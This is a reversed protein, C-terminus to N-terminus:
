KKPSHIKGYQTAETLFSNFDTVNELNVNAINLYTNTSASTPMVMSTMNSLASLNRAVSSSAAGALTSTKLSGTEALKKETLMDSLSWSSDDYKLIPSQEGEIKSLGSLIESYKNAFDTLIDLRGDLIAQEYDAGLIQKAILNDQENEYNDTISEWKSKYDELVAIDYDKQADELGKQADKLANKDSEWQWGLGEVYTRVTKQGTLNDVSEKADKVAKYAEELSNTSRIEEIQRDIIKGVASTASSYNKKLDSLRDKEQEKLFKYVAEEHKRYDELYENKGEFYQRNIRDIWAYYDKDSLEEMDKLHQVYDYEKQFAKRHNEYAEKADKDEPPDAALGSWISSSSRFDWVDEGYKGKNNASISYKGKAYMPINGSKIRRTVDAPLITDGDQIPIIEAGHTGIFSLNGNRLLAEEGEEGVLSEKGTISTQLGIAGTAWATGGGGGGGGGTHVTNVTVTVTKSQVSNLYGVVGGIASIAQGTNATVTTSKDPPDPIADIAANAPATDADVSLEKDEPDGIGAMAGEAPSTDANVEAIIEVPITENSLNIADIIKQRADGTINLDDLTAEVGSLSIEGTEMNLSNQISQLIVEKQGDKLGSLASDLGVEVSAMLRLKVEQESFYSVYADIQGETYQGSQELASRISNDMETTDFLGSLSIKGTKGYNESASNAWIETSDMIAADVQNKVEGQLGSFATATEASLGEITEKWNQKLLNKKDDSIMLGDILSNGADVTKGVDSIDLDSYIKQLQSEFNVAEEAALGIGDGMQSIKDLASGGLAMPLVLGLQVLREGITSMAENSLGLEEKMRGLDYTVNGFADVEKFREMSELFGNSGDENEVFLASNEELWQRINDPPTQGFMDEMSMKFADTNTLGTELSANIKGILGAYLDFEQPSAGDFLGKYSLEESKSKISNDMLKNGEGLAENIDKIAKLLSRGEETSGDIEEAYKNLALVSENAKLSHENQAQTLRSLEERYQQPSKEGNRFAENLSNIKEEYKTVLEIQERAYDPESLSAATQTMGLNKVKTDSARANNKTLAGIAAEEQAVDNLKNIQELASIQTQLQSNMRELKAVEKSDILSPDLGNIETLRGSAEDLQTQLAGIETNNDGTSKGIEDFKKAHEAATTVAKDVLAVGGAVALAVGVVPLLTKVLGKTAVTAAISGNAFNSQAFATGELGMKYENQATMLTKIFPLVKSGGFMDTASMTSSMKNKAINVALISAALMGMKIALQGVDSSLASLSLTGLNILGKTFNSDVMKTSLIEWQNTLRQTAAETSEEWISMKKMASGASNASIEQLQLAKDYNEMLVLFKEKQRIGAFQEAIESKQAAGLTDWKVALEDLVDGTKRFNGQADRLSINYEKLVSDVRSIDEGEGDTLKGLKVQSIRAFITKLSQGITEGSAQTVESITAIYSLLEDMSVGAIKAGAATQSMALALDQTSTAAAVDIASMKDVVSMADEAAIGYGNIASTLMQASTASDMFGVKSLVTSTKILQNTDAITRGQRLWVEASKAVETTTSSLETAIGQYTGLMGKIETDSAGTVMKISNMQDAVATSTSVMSKVANVAGYLVGMTVAWEVTRVAATKMSTKINDISLLNSKNSKTLQDQAYKANEAEHKYGSVAQKATTLKSAFDKSKHDLGGIEKELGSLAGQNAYSALGRTRIKEIDNLATKKQGLQDLEKKATNIETTRITSSKEGAKNQKDIIEVTKGLTENYKVASRTSGDSNTTTVRRMATGLNNVDATTRKISGTSGGLSKDLGKLGELGEVSFKIPIVKGTMSKVKAEAATLASIDVTLKLDAM